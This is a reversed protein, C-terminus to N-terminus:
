RDYDYQDKRGKEVHLARRRLDTEKVLRGEEEPRKVDKLKRDLMPKQKGFAQDVPDESPMAPRGTFQDEQIVGTGAMNRQVSYGTPQYVAVGLTNKLYTSLVFPKRRERVKPPPAVEYSSYFSGLRSAYLSPSYASGLSYRQAIGEALDDTTTPAAYLPTGYSGVSNDAGADGQPASDGSEM